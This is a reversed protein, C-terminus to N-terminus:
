AVLSTNEMASSLLGMTSTQSIRDRSIVGSRVSAPWSAETRERAQHLCSESIRKVLPLSLLVMQQFGLLPVFSPSSGVMDNEVRHFGM